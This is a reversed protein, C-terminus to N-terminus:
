EAVLMTVTSRVYPNQRIQQVVIERVEHMSEVELRVVLDYIGYVVSVEKVGDIQRLVDAVYAEKGVDVSVLVFALAM